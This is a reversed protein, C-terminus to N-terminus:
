YSKILKLAKKEVIYLINSPDGGPDVIAAIKTEECIILSCNQEYPTVPIVIIKM